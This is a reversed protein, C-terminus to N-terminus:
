VKEKQERKIGVAHIGKQIILSLIEDDTANPNFSLFTIGIYLEGSKVFYYSVKKLTM